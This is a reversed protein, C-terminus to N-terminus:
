GRHLTRNEWREMREAGPRDAGMGTVLEAKEDGASLQMPLMLRDVKGHANLAFRKIARIEAPIMYAPLRARLYASLAGADISAGEVFLAIQGGGKTNRCVVAAADAGGLFNRAHYEIEGLEIRYGDIKVQHDLRGALLIDGEEDISGADGTRYFRRVAGEHVQEFFVRDNKGDDHWYGPMVQPGSVCLEGSQGAGLISNTEDAVVATMGPMPRGVALMGNVHKNRAGSRYEYSACYVTAETPGYYNIIRANPVCPAWAEILDVPSAEGILLCLRLDPLRIEDFYPRLYRIMSPTLACLTLRNTSLLESAYSFRIVDHPVTYACAGSTLPSLYSQVSADFTLDYPQLCRDCETIQVGSQTFANMFAGLNMRTIPVGKPAGTSGSTFLIYALEDDGAFKPLLDAGDFSLGSTTMAPLRTDIPHPSSDIILRIEAQSVISRIREPPQSPHLPVYALGELWLAVISAYTEIDDRAALGVRRSTVGGAKLASRVRAINVAFERYTYFRDRIYFANREPFHDIASLIPQLVQRIFM